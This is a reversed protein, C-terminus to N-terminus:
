STREILWSVLKEKDIAKFRGIEYIHKSISEDQRHGTVLNRFYGRSYPFNELKHIDKLFIAQPWKESWCLWADFNNKM